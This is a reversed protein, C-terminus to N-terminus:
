HDESRRWEIFRKFLAEQDGRPAEPASAPQVAGPSAVIPKTGAEATRANLWAAAAETRRFGPLRAALNIERWKPHREPVRLEAFRPFFVEVFHAVRETSRPDGKAALLVMGIAVTPM